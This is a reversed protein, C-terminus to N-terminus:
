WFHYTVFKLKLILRELFFHLYSKGIVDGLNRLFLTNSKKTWINTHKDSLQNIGKPIPTYGVQWDALILGIWGLM